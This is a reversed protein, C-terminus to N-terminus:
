ATPKIGRLETAQSKAYAALFGIDTGASIYRAGMRVFKTILPIDNRIGGIGLHKGHARCARSVTEYAAHVKAHDFQGHVGLDACLDNTGILIVDIGDTAAIADANAVGVATEVMAVVLTSHDLLATAEKAPLARYGLQVAPGAMSRAGHPPFRCAAAAAKAEDPTNVDPFIIGQAGGDLVRGATHRDHSPVRVLPTVGALRAAVCIQSADNMDLASHQLDIFLADYGSTEAIVAIDVTRTLRVSMSLVIEGGALRDKMRNPLSLAAPPASM